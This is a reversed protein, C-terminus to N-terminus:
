AAAPDSSSSSSSGLLIQGILAVPAPPPSPGLLFKLMEPVTNCRSGRGTFFKGTLYFRTPGGDSRIHKKIALGERNARSRALDVDAITLPHEREINQAGVSIHLYALLGEVDQSEDVQGAHRLVVQILPHNVRKGCRLFESRMTEICRREAAMADMLVDRSSVAGEEVEREAGKRETVAAMAKSAIDFLPLLSGGNKSILIDERELLAHAKVLEDGEEEQEEEQMDIMMQMAPAYISVRSMPPPFPSAPGGCRVSVCVSLAEEGARKVTGM